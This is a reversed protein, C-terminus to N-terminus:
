VSRSRRAMDYHRAFAILALGATLVVLSAVISPLTLGWSTFNLLLGVLPVLTLSLGISLALREISDLDRTPFLAEVAVYGPIFLVFVSGLVWRVPLFSNPSVAIVLVTALTVVTSAYLWLNEDWHELYEQVSTSARPINQLDVKGAQVLRWVIDTMEAMTLTPSSQYYSDYAQTVSMAGHKQLFAWVERDPSELSLDPEERKM